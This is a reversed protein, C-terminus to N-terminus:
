SVVLSPTNKANDAGILLALAKVIEEPLNGQLRSV